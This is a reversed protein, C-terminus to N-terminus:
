DEQMEDNVIEALAALLQQEKHTSFTLRKIEDWRHMFAERTRRARQVVAKLKGLKPKMHNCALEFSQAKARLNDTEDKLRREKLRHEDMRVQALRKNSSVAQEAAKELASVKARLQVLEQQQKQRQSIISLESAKQGDKVGQAVKEQMDKEKHAQALDKILADRQQVLVSNHERLVDDLYPQVAAWDGMAAARVRTDQDRIKAELAQVEVKLKTIAEIQSLRATPPSGAHDHLDNQDQVSLPDEQGLELQQLEQQFEKEAEARKRLTRKLSQLSHGSHVYMERAKCLQENKEQLELQLTEKHLGLAENEAKLKANNEKLERARLQLEALRAGDAKSFQQLKEHLKDIFRPTMSSITPSDFDFSDIGMASGKNQNLTNLQHRPADLSTNNGSNSQRGGPGTAGSSSMDKKNTQM